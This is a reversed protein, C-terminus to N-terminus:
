RRVEDGVCDVLVRAANYHPSHVTGGYWIGGCKGCPRAKVRRSGPSLSVGPVAVGPASRVPSPCSDARSFTVANQTSSKAQWVVASRGTVRCARPALRQAQGRTVLESLRKQYSPDPAGGREKLLADTLESATCPGFRRLGALVIDQSRTLLGSARLGQYAEVSETTATM